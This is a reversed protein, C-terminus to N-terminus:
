KLFDRLKELNCFGIDKVVRGESDFISFYPQFNKKVMKRQLISNRQGITKIIKRKDGILISEEKPLLTEDDVYLSIFHFDTKLKDVIKYDSLIKNEMKIANICANGTFFILLPKNKIRADKLIEDFSINGHNKFLTNDKNNSRLPKSSIKTINNSRKNKIKTLINEFTESNEPISKIYSFVESIMEEPLGLKQLVIKDEEWNKINAKREVLTMALIFKPRINNKYNDSQKISILKDLVNRYTYPTSNQNAMVDTLVGMIIPTNIFIDIDTKDLGCDQFSYLNERFKIISEKNNPTLNVHQNLFQDNCSTRDQGFILYIQLSFLILLVNKM